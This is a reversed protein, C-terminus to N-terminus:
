IRFVCNLLYRPNIGNAPPDHSGNIKDIEISISRADYNPIFPVLAIWCSQPANVETSAVHNDKVKYSRYQTKCCGFDSDKGAKQAISISVSKLRGCCYFNKHSIGLISLSYVLLLLIIGVKKM